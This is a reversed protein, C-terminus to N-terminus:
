SSDRNNSEFIAIRAFDTEKYVREAVERCASRFANLDVGRGSGNKIVICNARTCAFGSVGEFKFGFEDMLALAAFGPEYDSTHKNLKLYNEVRKKRGIPSVDDDRLDTKIGLFAFTDSLSANKNIGLSNALSNRTKAIEEFIPQYLKEPIETDSQDTEYYILGTKTLCVSGHLLKEINDVVPMFNFKKDNINPEDAKVTHMQERIRSIEKEARRVMQKEADNPTVDVLIHTAGRMTNKIISLVADSNFSEACEETLLACASKTNFVIHRNEEHFASAIQHVQSPISEGRDNTFASRRVVGDLVFIARGDNNLLNSLFNRYAKRLGPVIAGLTDLYYGQRMKDSITPDALAQRFLDGSSVCEVIYDNQVFQDSLQRQLEGKGSGSPGHLFIM